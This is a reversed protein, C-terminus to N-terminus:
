MSIKQNDKGLSFNYYFVVARDDMNSQTGQM